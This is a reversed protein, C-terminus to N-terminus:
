KQPVKLSAINEPTIEYETMDDDSLMLRLETQSKVREWTSDPFEYVYQGSPFGTDSEPITHLVITKPDLLKMPIHGDSRYVLKLVPTEEAATTVYLKCDKPKPKSSFLSGGWTLRYKIKEKPKNSIRLKSADSYVVSGDPMKYQGIISIYLDAKPPTEILIMGDRIYDQVTIMSLTNRKVDEVTAWPVKSNVKRAVIYHIRDLNKPRNQLIIKLRGGEIRTETKNIECKEVSSARIVESIIGKTGSIIVVALAISTNPPIDFQCQQASSTTNAYTKGNGLISNIDTAPIIQGIMNSVSSSFVERVLVSRQTTDPSTWRVYVTRGETRSTVNKLAVPPKEPTLMVTYGESYRFGNGYPYVCQLRYGYTKNNSVSTDDYNASARETVITCNASPYEPPTANVCRLIRVGICNTPLVWSFRCVDNDAVARVRKVDLESFKEVECTIPESYVGQRHAFVAYGYSVGPQVSKDKYELVNLSQVLMDGDSHRQPIGNKKRVVCYSVGKDGASNWTLTCVLPEGSSIAGHLNIPTNPRCLGLMDIAPQYDKVNDLIEVCRNARVSVPLNSAPMLKQAEALKEAIIKRKSELKLQPMSASITALLKQANYFNGAEILSQLDNLPKQYKDNEEQIQKQLASLKPHGPYANQANDLQKRAEALDMEKLAFQAANFYEDFFQMESIHFGCSCWDAAAPVKKHCKPCAVYLEAGCAACKGKEAEERTRFEMPTKCSGCTVHILAEIPEYPDQMLGAEQNYLALSLNFDPFSKQITKICSEAFYRDKKFDDPASKLLAFFGKLKERELSQEYKKRNTESDFVQTTGATFLDALLHGQASMDSALQAAGTEMISYLETTRKRRFSAAETESGGSFYCALDFLDFVKSTWPYKPISMARLQEVKSSINGSVVTTLFAENLNVVKERKQVVFGKKVYTDEITKPSLKLKLHVNRIQANTVEPTGSQGILMIDILKELQSIRQEKLERAEANRTKNDKLTEVINDHLDLEASLVSRRTAITENALMDETRKKWAAIAQQIKRDNKEPPDFDLGLMEFYNRREM